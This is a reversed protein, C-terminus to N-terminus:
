NITFQLWTIVHMGVRSYRNVRYDVSNKFAKCGLLNWGTLQHQKVARWLIGTFTFTVQMNNKETHPHLGFSYDNRHSSITLNSGKLTVPERNLSLNGYSILYCWYNNCTVLNLLLVIDASASNGVPPNEKSLQWLNFYKM